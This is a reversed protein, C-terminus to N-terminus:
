KMRCHGIMLTMLPAWPVNEVIVLLMLSAEAGDAYLFYSVANPLPVGHGQESTRM